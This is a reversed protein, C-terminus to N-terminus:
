ALRGHWYGPERHLHMVAVLHLVSNEIRYVIAYPFRAVRVKRMEGEFRRHMRPNNSLRMIAEEVAAAFRGALDDDIHGYYSAAELLELRACDNWVLNM